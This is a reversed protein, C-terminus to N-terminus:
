GVVFIIVWWGVVVIYGGSVCCVYWRSGLEFYGVEVLMCGCGIWGSVM